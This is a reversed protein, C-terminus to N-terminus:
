VIQRTFGLHKLIFRTEYEKGQYEYLVDCKCDYGNTIEVSKEITKCQCFISKVNDLKNEFEVDGEEIM